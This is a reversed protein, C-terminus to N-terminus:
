EWDPLKKKENLTPGNEANVIFKRNTIKWENCEYTFCCDWKAQSFQVREDKELAMGNVRMAVHFGGHKRGPLCEVVYANEHQSRAHLHPHIPLIITTTVLSAKHTGSSFIVISVFPISM